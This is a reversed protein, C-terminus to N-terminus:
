PTPVSETYYYTSPLRIGVSFESQTIYPLGRSDTCKELYSGYDLDAFYYSLTDGFFSFLVTQRENLSDQVSTLDEDVGIIIDLLINKENFNFQPNLSFTVSVISQGNKSEFNTVYDDVPLQEIPLYFPFENTNNLTYLDLPPFGSINGYSAYPLVRNITYPILAYITYKGTDNFFTFATQIDFVKSSLDITVSSYNM